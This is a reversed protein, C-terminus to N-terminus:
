GILCDDCSAKARGARNVLQTPEPQGGSGLMGADVVPMAARRIFTMRSQTKFLTLFITM